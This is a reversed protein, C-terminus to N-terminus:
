TREHPFKHDTKDDIPFSPEFPNDTHIDVVARGDMCEAYEAEAEIQKLVDTDSLGRDRLIKIAQKLYKDMAEEKPMEFVAEWADFEIQAEYDEISPREGTVDGM